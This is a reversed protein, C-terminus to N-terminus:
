VAGAKGVAMHNSPESTFTEALRIPGAYLGMAFGQQNAMISAAMDKEEKSFLGTTDTRMTNLARRDLDGLASYSDKGEFSNYDFPQGNEAMQAYRMDIAKHAAQAVETKTKGSSFPEAAPDSVALALNNSSFGLRAPMYIEFGNPQATMFSDSIPALKGFSDYIGIDGHGDDPETGDYSPAAAVLNGSNALERTSVLRSATQIISYSVNRIDM